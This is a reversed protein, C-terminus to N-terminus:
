KWEKNFLTFYLNADRTYNNENKNITIPNIKYNRIHLVGKKETTGNLFYYNLKKVFIIACLTLIFIYTRISYIILFCEDNSINLFRISIAFLHLLFQQIIHITIIPFFLWMIFINENVQYKNSLTKQISDRNLKLQKNKLYLFYFVVCIPIDIFIYMIHRDEFFNFMIPIKVTIYTAGAIFTLALFPYFKSQIKEYRDIYMTSALREFIILWQIYRYINNLNLQWLRIYIFIDRWPEACTHRADNGYFFNIVSTFATTLSIIEIILITLLLNFRLHIHWTVKDSLVKLGLLCLILTIFVGIISFIDIIKFFIENSM